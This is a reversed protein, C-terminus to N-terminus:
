FRATVGLLPGSFDTKVDRGEIKKEISVYRWGGELSWRENFQYGLTALVQWTLDSAASLGGVDAFATAFWRDTIAVRTRGGILPDVWTESVGVRQGPLLGPSLSLDLDVSNVRFGAMLDLTVRENQAVRYAAYGSLARAETKIRGQSFLVGLPTARRQSLDAYFLDAILGWRGTRAELAGMFALDLKSLVDSSTKEVEITGWATGVAATIGPVWAYPSVAFSWGPSQAAAPGAILVTM